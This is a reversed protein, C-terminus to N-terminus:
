QMQEQQTSEYEARAQMEANADMEAEYQRQEEEQEIMRAMQENERSGYKYGADSAMDNYVSM